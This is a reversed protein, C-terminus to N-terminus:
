SHGPAEWSEAEITEPGALHRLRDVDCVVEGYWDVWSGCKAVDEVDALKGTATDNYFQYFAEIKPVASHLALQMETYELSGPKSFYEIPGFAIQHMVVPSHPTSPPFTEPHTLADLFPFYATSNELAITERYIHHQGMDSLLYSPFRVDVRLPISAIAM